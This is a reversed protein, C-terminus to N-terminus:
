TTSFTYAQFHSLRPSWNKLYEGCVLQSGKPLITLLNPFEFLQVKKVQLYPFYYRKQLNNHPNRLIFNIFHLIM